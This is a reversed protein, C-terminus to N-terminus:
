QWVLHAQDCGLAQSWNRNRHLWPIWAVPRFSYIWGHTKNEVFLESTEDRTVEKNPLGQDSINLFLDLPTITAISIEKQTPNSNTTATGGRAPASCQRYFPRNRTQQEWASEWHNKQICCDRRHAATKPLQEWPYSAVSLRCHEQPSKLMRNWLIGCILWSCRPLGSSYGKLNSEQTKKPLFWEQVGEEVQQDHSPDRATSPLLIPKPLRPCPGMWFRKRECSGQFRPIQSLNKCHFHNSSPECTSWHLHPCLLHKLKCWYSYKNANWFSNWQHNRELQRNWIKNKLRKLTQNKRLRKGMCDLMHRLSPQSPLISWGAVAPPHIPWIDEVFHDSSLCCSEIPPIVSFGCLARWSYDHGTQSM